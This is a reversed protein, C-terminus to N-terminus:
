TPTQHPDPSPWIITLHDPSHLTFTLHIEIQAQSQHVHFKNHIKKVLHYQNIYSESITTDKEVLVLWWASEQYCKLPKRQIRPISPNEAPM